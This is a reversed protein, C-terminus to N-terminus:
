TNTKWGAQHACGARGDIGLRRGNLTLIGGTHNEPYSGTARDGTVKNAFLEVAAVLIDRHNWLPRAIALRTESGLLM